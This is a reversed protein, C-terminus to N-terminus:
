LVQKNIYEKATDVTEYFKFLQDIQTMTMLSQVFKSASVIIVPISHDRLTRHALLFAGLGSSDLSEVTGIDFILGKIDPQAEILVKAKIEPAIDAGISKEKISFVIINDDNEISFKM